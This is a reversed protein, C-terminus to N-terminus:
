TDRINALIADNRRARSSRTSSSSSIARMFRVSNLRLGDRGSGRTKRSIPVGHPSLPARSNGSRKCHFPSCARTDSAAFASHRLGRFIRSSVARFVSSRTFVCNPTRAQAMAKPDNQTEPNPMFRTVSRFVTGPSNEVTKAKDKAAM